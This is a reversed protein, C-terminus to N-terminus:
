EEFFGSFYIVIKVLMNILVVTKLILLLLFYKRLVIWCIQIIESPDYSASSQLLLHQFNLKAM